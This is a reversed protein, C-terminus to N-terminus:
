VEELYEKAERDFSCFRTRIAVGAAISVIGQWTQFRDGQGDDGRERQPKKHAIARFV